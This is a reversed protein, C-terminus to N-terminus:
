TVEIEGAEYNSPINLIRPEFQSVCYLFNGMKSVYNRKNCLQSKFFSRELFFKNM